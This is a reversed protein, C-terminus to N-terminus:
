FTALVNLRRAEPRRSKKKERLLASLLVYRRTM